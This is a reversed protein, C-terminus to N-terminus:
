LQAMAKGWAEARIDSMAEAVRNHLDDITGNNNIFTFGDEWDIDMSSRDEPPLGRSSADVWWIHDYLKRAEVFEAANRMGVYIDYEALIARSLRTPDVSNYDKILDYWEARRNVRDTYCEELDHYHIGKAALAPRILYEALFLSSSQFKYGHVDRLIEAVTDKGHRAWGLLLIKPRGLQGPADGYRCGGACGKM